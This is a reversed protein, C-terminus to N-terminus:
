DGDAPPNMFISGRMAGSVFLTGGGTELAKPASTLATRGEQAEVAGSTFSAVETAAVM